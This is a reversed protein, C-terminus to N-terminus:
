QKQKKFGALLGKKGKGQANLTARAANIQEIDDKPFNLMSYVIPLIDENEKTTVPLKSLFQIMISRVHKLHDEIAKETGKAPGNSGWSDRGISGDGWSTRGAGSVQLNNDLDQRLRSIEEHLEDIKAEKSGVETELMLTRERLNDVEESSEVNEIEMIRRKQEEMEAEDLTRKEPSDAREKLGHNEIAIEAKEAESRTLREELEEIKGQLVEIKGKAELVETNLMSNQEELDEAQKSLDGKERELASQVAKMSVVMAEAADAKSGQSSMAEEHDKKLKDSLEKLSDMDAQLKANEDDRSKLAVELSSKQGILTLNKEIFQKHKGESSEIQEQLKALFMERVRNTLCMLIRTRKM